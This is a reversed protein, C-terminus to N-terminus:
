GVTSNSNLFSFQVTDDEAGTSLSKEWPERTANGLRLQGFSSCKSCSKSSFALEVTYTIYCHHISQNILRVIFSLYYQLMNQNLNVLPNLMIIRISAANRSKKTTILIQLKIVIAAPTILVQL